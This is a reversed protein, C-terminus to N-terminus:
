GSGLRAGSSNDAASVDFAERRMTRLVQPEERWDWRAWTPQAHRHQCTVCLSAEGREAAAYYCVTM